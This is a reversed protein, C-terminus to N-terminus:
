AVKFPEVNRPGKSSVWLFLPHSKQPTLNEKKTRGTHQRFKTEDAGNM